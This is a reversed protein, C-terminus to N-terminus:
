KRPLLIERRKKKNDIAFLKQIHDNLVLVRSDQSLYGSGKYFEIKTKRGDAYEILASVDNKEGQWLHLPKKLEFVQLKDNNNAQLFLLKDQVKIKSLAKADLPAKFGTQAAIREAFNGKGDGKLVLGDMADERGIDVATSFLNGSLLVDLNGDGDYDCVSTGFVPGFQARLPLDKLLFHNGGQNELFSSNFYKAEFVRTGKMQEKRFLQSITKDAYDAHKLFEKRIERIQVALNDRNAFPYSVGSNYYCLIADLSNNKDFDNVWLSLPENPKAKLRLNQGENGLIYDMDGDNDFDGASISNWWGNTNQMGMKQTVNKLHGNDNKFCMIPMWEGCVLLDAVGDNTFDTWLAATVLGPALLDSCVEKTADIFHGHDNRLLFSRPSLPYSGPIIRGGIFIDDDGDQDFDSVAVACSSTNMLPLAQIDIKFNGKGDNFYMRSQYEKASADYENGGSLILLDNDGDSDADFFVCGMDECASNDTKWPQSSSLHFHASKEQLYLEGGGSYQAGGVFFDDLGDGNVDAVVVSPGNKSFQHPLLPERKYDIFDNEHHVFHVGYKASKEKFLNNNKVLPCLYKEKADTEYLTLEKQANVNKIRQVYGSPWIVELENIIKEKGTGFHLVPEVSSQYGRNVNMEQYQIGSPTTITLKCGMGYPNSISGKFRIRLSHNPHKRESNNRYLIPSDDINCVIIDLDGDNDFDAYAAGSSYTKAKIGWQDSMKSFTLNGNNRFFYNQIKNEPMTKLIEFANLGGIKKRREENNYFIFDKNNFDKRFGNSVFIDKYGDNDYDALLVSWSWDTKSVGSLEGIESFTGDGNNLQLMNRMQQHGYGLTQAYYNYSDYGEQDAMMKLRYNDAAQMELTMVDLLGDNNIDAIDNGMSAASIHKFHNFITDSFTHNKNNIFLRDPMYFDNCVYLDAYGDKNFDASTASLNFAKTLVGAKESIDEFKGGKNEFMRPTSYADYNKKEVAYPGAKDFPELFENALYLDLDGDNDMDFFTGSTSFGKNDIGYEAARETFTNNKNNIFLHNARQNPPNFKGSKCVYIDLWGDNNIDAMSVGTCWEQTGVGASQTIDEFKLNGKNIYLKSSQQNGSLYIDALGDNNLDGVAVGSGNYFYWFNYINKEKTEQLTNVFTIGTQQPSLETFLPDKVEILYNKPENKCGVGLFLLLCFVYRIDKVKQINKNSNLFWLHGLFTFNSNIFLNYFFARNKIILM